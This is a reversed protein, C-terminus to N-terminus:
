IYLLHVFLGRASFQWWAESAANEGAWTTYVQLINAPLTDAQRSEETGPHAWM